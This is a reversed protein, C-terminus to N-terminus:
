EEIEWNNQSRLLVCMKGMPCDECPVIDNRDIREICFDKIVRMATKFRIKQARKHMEDVYSIIIKREEETM